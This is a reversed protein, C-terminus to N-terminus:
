RTTLLERRLLAALWDEYRDASWGWREVLTAYVEVGTLAALLATADTASIGYALSGALGAVIEALAQRGEDGGGRMVAAAAPDDAAAELMGRVDAGHEWFSRFARAVGGLRTAPDPEALARSM